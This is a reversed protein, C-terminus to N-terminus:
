DPFAVQVNRGDKGCVCSQQPSIQTSSIDVKVVVQLEKVNIGLSTFTSDVVTITNLSCCGVAGIYESSDAM